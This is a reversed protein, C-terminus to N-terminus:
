KGAEGSVYRGETTKSEGLCKVSLFGVLGGPVLKSLSAMLPHGCQLQHVGRGEVM